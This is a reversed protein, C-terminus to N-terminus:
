DWSYCPVDGPPSILIQWSLDQHRFQTCVCQVEKRDECLKHDIMTLGDKTLITVHWLCATGRGKRRTPQQPASAAAPRNEMMIPFGGFKPTEPPRIAKENGDARAAGSTSPSVGRDAFTAPEPIPM